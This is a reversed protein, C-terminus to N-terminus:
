KIEAVAVMNLDMRSVRTTGRSARRADRGHNCVADQRPDGLKCQERLYRLIGTDSTRVISFIYTNGEDVRVGRSSVCGDHEIPRWVVELVYRLPLSRGMGSRRESQLPNRRLSMRRDTGDSDGGPIVLFHVQFLPFLKNEWRIPDFYTGEKIGQM